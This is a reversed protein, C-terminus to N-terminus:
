VNLLLVARAWSDALYSQCGEVLPSWFLCTKINELASFGGGGMRVRSESWASVWFLPVIVSVNCPFGLGGKRGAQVEQESFIPDDHVEVRICHCFSFFYSPLRCVGKKVVVLNIVSLDPSIICGRVSKRRREGKRRGYGRFCSDGPKMLLRVRGPVLVGQKMPFGQKDQGGKIKFVYGKFDQV